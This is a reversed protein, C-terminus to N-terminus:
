FDGVVNLDLTQNCTLHNMIDTYKGVVLMVEFLAFIVMSYRAMHM